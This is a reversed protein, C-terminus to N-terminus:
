TTVEIGPAGGLATTGSESDKEREALMSGNPKGAHQVNLGLEAGFERVLPEMRKRLFERGRMLRSKVTGLSIQLVEAVEEYSLDEVDRLVLTTRYPEPVQRIEAEVLERLEGHIAGDLPSQGPDALADRLGLPSAGNEQPEGFAEISTERSKHRFWWRRHNSAEHVAIRYIWTKLSSEGHFRKIGRFVKLFVDQTTDASDAPDNLIRYVLNYVPQQFQAVLM